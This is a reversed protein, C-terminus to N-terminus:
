RRREDAVPGILWILGVLAAQLAALGIFVAVLGVREAAGALLSGGGQSLNLMAMFASFQTAAIPGDALAMFLSFMSVSLLGFAFLEALYLGTVITHSGWPLAAHAIWIAAMALTALTTSRRAGIRSAVFGGVLAGAIEAPIAYGGELTLLQADTWGLGRRLHVPWVVLFAGHAVCSLLALVAAAAIPRTLLSRLLLGFLTRASRPVTERDTERPRSRLSLWADGPRERLLLPVLMVALLIAIEAGIATALGRRILLLGLVQGGLFSGVALSAQMLGNAAGRREAPLLDIATADVAVDSLAAFLNVSLVMAGLLALSRGVQGTALEVALLAALMAVMGSEALLIWPRRRGMVSHSFRDLIPGWVWKLAWPWSIAAILGGIAATGVGEDILYNKLGVRVFRDPMGQAAYLVCLAAICLNPRGALTPLSPRGAM